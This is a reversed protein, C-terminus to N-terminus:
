IKIKKLIKDLKTIWFAIRKWAVHNSIPM